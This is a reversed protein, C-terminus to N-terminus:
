APFASAACTFGRARHDSGRQGGPHHESHERASRRDAVPEGLVRKHCLHGALGYSVFAEHM